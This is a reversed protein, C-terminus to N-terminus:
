SIPTLLIFLNLYKLVHGSFLLETFKGSQSFKLLSKEVDIYSKSIGVGLMSSYPLNLTM